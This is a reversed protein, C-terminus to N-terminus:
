SSTSFSKAAMEYDDFIEYLRHLRTIEFISRVHDNVNSVKIDGNVKNVSRLSAVLIGIGSSDIFSIDDLDFVFNSCNEKTLSKVKGRIDKVSSADLRGKFKLIMVGDIKQQTIEM